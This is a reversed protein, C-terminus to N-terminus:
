TFWKSTVAPPRYERIYSMAELPTAVFPCTARFAPKAFSLEYFREFFAMLPDYFGGVNVAVLPANIFGFQKQTIVESIEELTGFGGPLAIFADSLEMMSAKRERMDKTFTLEDCELYPVGPRNMFTPIIGIVRGGSRHVARATAGMLGVSGGGFVLTHGGGGILDGLDEAVALYAGDVADSSSCFVCVKVVPRREGGSYVAARSRRLGRPTLRELVM